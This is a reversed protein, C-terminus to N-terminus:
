ATRKFMHVVVFPQLNNHAGGGGTSGTDYDTITPNNTSTDRAGWGANPGTTASNQYEDHVHPPIEAVTLTHTKAGGTEEVTDFDPDGADIGVLVRGAGFAVWTTGPWYTGPNAPNVTIYVDDVPHTLDIIEAETLGGGGGGDPMEEVIGNTCNLYTPIAM